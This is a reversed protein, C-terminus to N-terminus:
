LLPRQKDERVLDSVTSRVRHQEMGFKNMEDDLPSPYRGSYCAGCFDNAPFGTAAVMGDYSLYGLSDAGLDEEIRVEDTLDEAKRNLREAIIERVRQAVKEKDEMHRPKRAKCPTGAGGQPRVGTTSAM